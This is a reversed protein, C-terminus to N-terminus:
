REFGCKLEVMRRGWHGRFLSAAILRKCGVEKREAGPVALGWGLVLVDIALPSAKLALESRATRHHEVDHLMRWQTELGIPGMCGVARWYTMSPAPGELGM